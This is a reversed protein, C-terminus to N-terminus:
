MKYLVKANLGKPYLTDLKHICFTAKLLRDMNDSVYDIPMFSFDEISHEDSNLHIVVNTSDCCKNFRLM